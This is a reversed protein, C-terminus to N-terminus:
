AIRYTRRAIETVREVAEGLTEVLYREPIRRLEQKLLTTFGERNLDSVIAAFPFEVEEATTSILDHPPAFLITMMDGWEYKLQRLDLICCSPDWAKFGAAIMGEMYCADSNSGSGFGCEGSFEIILTPLPKLEPIDAIFYRCHISSLDRLRVETTKM